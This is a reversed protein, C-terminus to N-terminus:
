VGLLLGRAHSAQDGHVLDPLQITNFVWRERTSLVSSNPYEVRFPPILTRHGSELCARALATFTRL